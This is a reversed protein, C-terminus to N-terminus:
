SSEAMTAITSPADRLASDVPLRREVTRIIRLYVIRVTIIADLGLVSQADEMRRVTRIRDIMRGRSSVATYIYIYICIHTYLYINM